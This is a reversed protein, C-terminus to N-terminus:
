PRVFRQYVQQEKWRNERANPTWKNEGSQYQFGQTPKLKKKPGEYEKDDDDEDDEPNAARGVACRLPQYGRSLMSATLWAPCWQFTVAPREASGTEGVHVVDQLRATSLRGDLRRCRVDGRAAGLLVVPELFGPRSEVVAFQL